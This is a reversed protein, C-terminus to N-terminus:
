FEIFVKHFFKPNSQLCEQPQNHKFLVVLKNQSFVLATKQLVLFGLVRHDIIYLVSGYQIIIIRVMVAAMEQGGCKIECNKDGLAM